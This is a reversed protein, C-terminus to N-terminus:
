RVNDFVRTNNGLLCMVEYSITGWLAALDDATVRGEGQGGILYAAGGVCLDPIGSVDVATMQMSVRGIVPARRGNICVVGKNSFGRSFGDAYGAAIIAVRLDRPATFTQGYGITKGQELVRLTMIPTTVEMAPRLGDGLSAMSTGYFPNLGYLALGPRRIHPGVRRTIKDGLMLGASNCLSAALNPWKGRLVNYMRLYLGVQEDVVDQRDDMDATAFHTLLVVPEVDPIEALREMLPGMDPETFGLRAMGTHCKLAILRPRQPAAKFMDLQEFCQVVPILDYEVALAIDQPVVTGLLCLIRPQTEGALGRRLLAGESVSGTALLRAGDRVLTRGVQIQDHGYADSKIVPMVSPLAENGATASLKGGDGEAKSRLLRYNDSITALSVSVTPIHMSLSM